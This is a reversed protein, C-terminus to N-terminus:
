KRYGEPGSWAQLPVAKGKGKQMISNDIVTKSRVPYRGKFAMLKSKQVSATLGQRTTIKNLETAFKQL